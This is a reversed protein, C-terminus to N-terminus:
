TPASRPADEAIQQREVLFREVVEGVGREREPALESAIIAAREGRVIAARSSTRSQSRRM